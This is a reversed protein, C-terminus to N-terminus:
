DCLTQLLRLNVPVFRAEKYTEWYKDSNFLKCNITFNQVEVDTICLPIATMWIQIHMDM